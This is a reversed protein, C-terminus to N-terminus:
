LALQPGHRIWGCPLTCLYAKRTRKWKSARENGRQADGKTKMNGSKTNVAEKSSAPTFRWGSCTKRTPEDYADGLNTPRRPPRGTM